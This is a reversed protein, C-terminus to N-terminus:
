KQFSVRCTESLGRDMM